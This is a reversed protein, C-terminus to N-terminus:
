QVPINGETEGLLFNKLLGAQESSISTSGSRGQKELLDISQKLFSDILTKKIYNIPANYQEMFAGTSLDQMLFLPKPAKSMAGFFCINNIKQFDPSIDFNFKWLYNGASNLIDEADLLFCRWNIGSQKTKDGSDLVYNIWQIKSNSPDSSIMNANNDMGGKEIKNIELRLGKKVSIANISVFSQEWQHRAALAKIGTKAPMFTNVLQKGIVPTFRRGMNVAAERPSNIRFNFFQM